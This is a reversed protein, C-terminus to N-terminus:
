AQPLKLKTATERIVKLAKLVDEKEVYTQAIVMRVVYKGHVKTHSIFLQGERNIEEILKQNLEDLEEESTNSDPKFRFATFNLSPELVLEFHPDAKIEEAFFQNLAIHHRLTKQIGELGFGRM